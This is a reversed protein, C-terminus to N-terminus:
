LYYSFKNVSDRSAHLYKKAAEVEGEGQPSRYDHQRHVDMVVLVVCECACEYVELWVICYYTHVCSLYFCDAM